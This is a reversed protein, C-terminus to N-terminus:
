FKYSTTGDFIPKVSKTYSEKNTWVKINTKLKFDEYWRTVKYYHGAYPKPFGKTSSTVSRLDSIKKYGEWATVVVVKAVKGGPTALTVVVDAGVDNLIYSAAAEKKTVTHYTVKKSTPANFVSKVLKEDPYRGSLYLCINERGILNVKPKPVTLTYTGKKNKTKVKQSDSQRYNSPYEYGISIGAASTDLTRLVTYKVKVTGDSNKTASNVKVFSGVVEGSSAFVSHTVMTSMIFVNILIINLMSKWNKKVM